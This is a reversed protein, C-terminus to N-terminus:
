VLAFTGGGGVGGGGGGGGPDDGGDSSSQQLLLSLPGSRVPNSPGNTAELIITHTTSPSTAAGTPFTVENGNITTGIPAGSIIQSITAGESLFPGLDVIYNGTGRLRSLSPLTQWVPDAPPEISISYDATNTRGVDDTARITVAFEGLASATGGRVGNIISIGSGNPEIDSTIVIPPALDATNIVDDNHDRAPIEEGLALTFSTIAGFEPLITPAQGAPIVNLAFARQAALTTVDTVRLFHDGEVITQTGDAVLERNANLTIGAPLADGVIEITLDNIPSDADSIESTFDFIVGSFGENVEFLPPFQGLVPPEAPFLADLRNLRLKNTAACDAVDELGNAGLANVADTFAAVFPGIDPNGAVINELEAELDTLSQRFEGDLLLLRRALTDILVGSRMEVTTADDGNAVQAINALDVFLNEISEQPVLTGDLGSM